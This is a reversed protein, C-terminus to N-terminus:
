ATVGPKPGPKPRVTLLGVDGTKTADDLQKRTVALQRRLTALESPEDVDGASRDGLKKQLEEVQERLIANDADLRENEDHMRTYEATVRHVNFRETALDRLANDREALVRQYQEADVPAQGQTKRRRIM